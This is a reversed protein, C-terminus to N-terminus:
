NLLCCISSVTRIKEGFVPDSLELLNDGADASDVKATRQTLEASSLSIVGKGNKGLFYAKCEM